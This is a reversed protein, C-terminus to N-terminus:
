RAVTRQGGETDTSSDLADDEYPYRRMYMELILMLSGRANDASLETSIESLTNAPLMRVNILFFDHTTGDFQLTAVLREPAGEPVCGSQRVENTVFEDTWFVTGAPLEVRKRIRLKKVPGEREDRRDSASEFIGYFAAAAARERRELGPKVIHNSSFRTTPTPPHLVLSPIHIQLWCGLLRHCDKFLVDDPVRHSIEMLKEQIVDKSHDSTEGFTLGNHSFAVKTVDVAIYGFVSRTGIKRPMQKVQRKAEFLRKMFQMPSAVRKCEIYFTHRDTSAILDTQKSVDVACGAQCFYSAIRLEFQADRSRSDSDLAAFDRGGVILALKEDIGMPIRSKLGKLIWALEHVERLVYLLWDTPSNFPAGVSNKFITTGDFAGCEAVQRLYAIYREIRTNRSQISRASVFERFAVLDELLDSFSVGPVTETPLKYATKIAM